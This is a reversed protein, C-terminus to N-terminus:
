DGGDDPAACKVATAGEADMDEDDVLRPSKKKAQAELWEQRRKRCLFSHHKTHPGSEGGARCGQM